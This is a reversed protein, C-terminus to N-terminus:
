IYEKLEEDIYKIEEQTLNEKFKFLNKKTYELNFNDEVNPDLNLKLCLKKKESIFNSFFNEYKIQTIDELEKFNIKNWILKYWKVFIKLNHGPYGLSNRRKMSWYIAKPDRKVFIVERNSGYYKTSSTPSMFNGGQEIVVNKSNDFKESLEFIKNLYEETAVLFKKENKPMVMKLLNINKSPKRLFFRKFYFFLKKSIKMKDLFFQPGGNYHVDIITDIFNKSLKLFEKNLIKNKKNYNSNYYNKAFNNFNNLSNSAGNVSCHTFFSHYLEDLGDPDNILRFEKGNFPSFFDKRSLLYDHIAGAGSNGSGLVIFIRM